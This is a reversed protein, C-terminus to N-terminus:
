TGRSGWRGSLCNKIQTQQHKRIALFKHNFVTTKLM